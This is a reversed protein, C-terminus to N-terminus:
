GADAEQLNEVERTGRCRPYAQCGWFRRGARAGKRATRLVMPGGCNPCCPASVEVPAPAAKPAGGSPPNAPAGGKPAQVSAVLKVLAEGDILRVRNGRAFAVAEATFAGSTVLVAAQASEGAVVGLLERVPRVGVKRAKWHKCQVLTTGGDKRLVLDVGGDGTSDGTWEVRYGERRFAEGVYSEFDRWSLNRISELSQHAELRRRTVSRRVLSFLWMVLIVGALMLGGMKIIPILTVGLPIRGAYKALLAPLLFWGIGAVGAALVPGLWAPAISLIDAILDLIGKDRRAM